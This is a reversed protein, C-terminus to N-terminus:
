FESITQGEALKVIAKKYGARRGVVQGRRRRKDRAAVINVAAVLVGYRSEVAQKIASKSARGAVKFVHINEGLMTAKESIHPSILLKGALESHSKVSGRPPVGGAEKFSPKSDAFFGPKKGAPPTPSTHARAAKKADGRRRWGGFIQSLNFPM